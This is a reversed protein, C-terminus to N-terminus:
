IKSDRILSIRRLYVAAYMCLQVSQAILLSVALGASGGGRVVVFYITAGLYCVANCLNFILNERSKDAALMMQGISMQVALVLGVVALLLLTEWDGRLDAGFLLIIWRWSIFGCLLLLTCVGVIGALTATASRVFLNRNLLNARSFFPLLFNAFAAPVFAFLSVIMYFATFAAAEHLGNRSAGLMNLCVLHVPTTLLMGAATPAIFKRIPLEGYIPPFGNRWVVSRVSPPLLTFYAVCGALSISALALIMGVAGFFNAAILVSPVTLLSLAITCLAASPARGFAYLTANLVGAPIQFLMVLATLRYLHTLDGRHGLVDSLSGALGLVAISLVAASFVSARLVARALMTGREESEVLRRSVFVGATFSLSDIFVTGINACLAYALAFKGFELAGLLHSGGVILGATAFKQSASAIFSSAAGLRLM